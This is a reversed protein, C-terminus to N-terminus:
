PRRANFAEELVTIQGTSGDVRVRQGTRLRRTAQRVGVVAPIGYERAVVSGHTMMGGVEMVLGGASLFLPTWAPDTGPCVLIEGPQVQTEHPDFVVRVPGEVAGPSVPDGRLIHGPDGSAAPPPADYLATGDSLLIRPLRRRRMERAQVRRRQRIRARLDAPIAREAVCRELEARRLLFIDEPRELAGAQALHVAGRWLSARLAGLAQIIYFKPAERMGALARYRSVAFRLLRARLAGLPLSRLAAALEREAAAAQQAGRAFVADPAQGAEIRLYSGLTQFVHRPDDRWRPRAIDIEGLGRMGYRDLFDDVASQLTKPLAGRRWAAALAEPSRDELAARSAADGQARRAAQWLALDMETTVNHPLGRSIHLPLQELAPDRRNEAAQRALAQVLGFYPMLGGMIVPLAEPLVVDPFLSELAPFLVLVRRLTEWADTESPSAARRIAAARRRLLKHLRARAAQPRALAGLLRFLFRGAFRGLSFAARARLRVSRAAFRPDNLLARALRAASPDIRSFGRPYRERLLPHRLIGSINLWLREGASYLMTQEQPDPQRGALRATGLLLTIIVDQGLPSFPEHVGQVLHFGLLARPPAPPLNEPLPYLSTIPRSQLIHLGGAADLAWEIDQPAGYLAQIRQGLRTLALIREDPLAQRGAHAGEALRVGGGEAATIVVAKGGLTKRAIVPTEAGTRVIYQDPEVQGSVLAEGLGLTADIVSEDRKGTLPNATFLVGSAQAPVMRQVVVALAAQRHPIGNRARYGIARGSWLSAWCDVVAQQLAELGIVNLYTDQQGAFSLDPLDETTASSRVAVPPAGLWRWAAELPASLGSPFGARRFAARIRQSAAELRAPDDLGELATQIRAELGNERVFARYVGTPLFFGQPVPMGARALISLNRAKGGATELDAQPSDLPLCPAPLSATM